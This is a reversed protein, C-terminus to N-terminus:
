LSNLGIFSSHHYEPSHGCRVSNPGILCVPFPWCPPFIRQHLEERNEQSHWADTSGEALEVRDDVRQQWYAARAAGEERPPGHGGGDLADDGSDRNFSGHCVGLGHSREFATEWDNFDVM